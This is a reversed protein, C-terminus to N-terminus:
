NAPGSYNERDAVVKYAKTNWIRHFHDRWTEPCKEVYEKMIDKCPLQFKDDAVMIKKEQDIKINPVLNEDLCKFYADRSAWCAERDRKRLQKSM